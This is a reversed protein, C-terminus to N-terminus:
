AAARPCFEFTVYGVNIPKRGEGTPPLEIPIRGRRQLMLALEEPSGADSSGIIYCYGTPDVDQPMPVFSKQRSSLNSYLWFGVGERDAGYISDLGYLISVDETTLRIVFNRERGVEGEGFCREVNM